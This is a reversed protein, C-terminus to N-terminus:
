IGTGHSLGKLKNHNILKLMEPDTVEASVAIVGPQRLDPECEATGIVRREGNEYIVLPVQM